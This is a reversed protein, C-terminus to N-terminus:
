SQRADPGGHGDGVRQAGHQCEYQKERLLFHEPYCLFLFHFRMFVRLSAFDQTEVYNLNLSDFTM